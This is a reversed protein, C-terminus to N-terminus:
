RRGSFILAFWCHRLASIGSAGLSTWRLLTRLYRQRPELNRAIPEGLSARRENALALSIEARAEDFSLLRAPRIETVQVIHFGLHSRFPKSRQGLAFNKSKRSFNPRCERVRLFLWSRRRAIQPRMRPHKRPSSRWPKAAPSAVRSRPSRWSKKKSLKLRRRPMPPSFFIRPASGSAAARLPRPASRLFGPMGTRHSPEGARDTEGAMPARLQSPSKKACLRFPFGTRGFRRQSRRKTALSRAFCVCNRARNEGSRDAGDRCRPSSKRRRDPRSATSMQTAASIGRTFEKATRSPSLVAAALFVDPRMAFLRRAAFCNASVLGALVRVCDLLALPAKKMEAGIESLYYSAVAGVIRLSEASLKDMTDGPTHWAPYDFDILDITPIGIANLPTHDDMIDRDFYTFHKRLNLAEASAFIGRAMEAPSDPPLTITLSRDGVMDFLIGGRFQKAKSRPRWSSRSIVAETFGTRKPSLKTRKRAMLFFSSWKGPWTRVSPSSGPWNSCCAPARAAMTQAWSDHRTSYRRTTTRASRSLFSREGQRRFHRDLNVFEVKGRPTNDAFAQRTWRGASFNSSNPSIRERRKSRRADGAAAPRPGGDGSRARASERRFIRGLNEKALRSPSQTQARDCAGRSSRVRSAIGRLTLAAGCM